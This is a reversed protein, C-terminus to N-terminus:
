PILQYTITVQASIEQPKVAQYDFAEPNSSSATALRFMPTHTQQEIIQYANGLTQQSSKALTKAKQFANDVAAVLAQQQLAGLNDFHFQAPQIQSLGLQNLQHFIAPLNDLNNITITISYASTEGIIKREGNQYHYQTYARNNSADISKKGVGLAKLEKVMAVLQQESKKNALAKTKDTHKIGVILTAYDPMAYINAKGHVQINAFEAANIAQTFTFLLVALLMSFPKM